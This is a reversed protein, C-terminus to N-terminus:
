YDSDPYFYNVTAKQVNEEEDPTSNYDYSDYFDSTTMKPGQLYVMEDQSDRVKVTEVERPQSQHTDDNNPFNNRGQTKYRLNSQRPVDEAVEVNGDKPIGFQFTESDDISALNPEGSKNLSTHILELGFDGENVEFQDIWCSFSKCDSNFEPFESSETRLIYGRHTKLLDYSHLFCDFSECNLLRRAESSGTTDPVSPPSSSSRTGMTTTMPITVTTPSATTRGTSTTTSSSSVPRMTEAQLLKQHYQLHKGSKLRELQHVDHYRQLWRDHYQLLDQHHELLMMHYELQELHYRLQLEHYQLHHHNFELLTSDKNPAEQIRKLLRTLFVKQSTSHKIADLM